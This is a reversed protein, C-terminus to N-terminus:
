RKLANLLKARSKWEVVAANLLQQKNLKGSNLVLNFEKVMHDLGTESPHKTNKRWYSCRTKRIKESCELRITLVNSWNGFVKFENEFRCDDIIVTYGKKIYKSAANVGIKAWINDDITKRGWETGLYQLLEGDKVIDRKIGNESLVRLCFDHMKYLPDAFKIVKVPKGAKTIKKVLGDSLTTKGSGQKGSILIIM